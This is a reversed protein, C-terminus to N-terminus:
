KAWTAGGKTGNLAIAVSINDEGGRDNAANILRLCAAEPTHMESAIALIEEDSLMNSLGDSCSLVMDGAELEYEYFDTQVSESVGVARTIMHKMPYNEAEEPTIEGRALLMEVYSHDETLQTIEGGRILYVRSDGVHGICLKGDVFLCVDVTTGMGEKDGTAEAFIRMNAALIAHCIADRVNEECSSLRESIIETAMRSAVEGANHGGMGDAVIMLNDSAYVTDENQERKKGRDTKASVKLM